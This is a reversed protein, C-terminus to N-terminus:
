ELIAKIRRTGSSVAEEKVIRFHGLENTSAVHPGGCIEKSFAGVSYVKVKEGYKSEFVGLAGKEKAKELSMEEAEISLNERIKKNVLDEVKQIQELSMKENHSFDFRLREPTINSGKQYIHSGLVERLSAQLLHTATHLKTTQEDQSQLGGKFAGATATRSLEQHKKFEDDFGKKIKELHNHQFASLNRSIKINNLEEISLEIPFGFTSYITFLENGLKELNQLIEIKDAEKINFYKENIINKLEKIGRELTERFKNEEKELEEVIKSKNIELEKYFDKYMEFVIEAIQKSFNNEIGLLKGYRVARRILRRLVYGRLVNSPEVGDAIMFVATKIHDAIIRFYKQYIEYHEGSIEEIKQFIPRFLETEFVNEKKNLIALTREVGMGTDVNLQKLKEVTGNASKNFEMFVNNWIEIIRGSDVLTSFKGELKGGEPHTDYFIETDGGCPGTTGAIWFNDNVGLPIIRINDKIIEDDGTVGSTLNNKSFVEQWIQISEDDRPIGGGDPSNGKFVTVYIRQQDLGLWKKDTLFEFSWEIAEKKFYDGLSWNGMMEFFTLHRNDGVDDIDSTRVCKQVNVIRKGGPHDEGLLYPVLPHMGATTFLVSSDTEHPVLSASPIITHEKSKFFELYKQRLTKADM